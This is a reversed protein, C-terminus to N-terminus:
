LQQTSVAANVAGALRELLLMLARGNPAAAGVTKWGTLEIGAWERHSGTLTTATEIGLLLRNLHGPGGSRAADTAAADIVTFTTTSRSPPYQERLWPWRRPVVDLVGRGLLDERVLDPVSGVLFALWDGLVAPEPEGAIQELVRGAVAAVLAPEGHRPSAVGVLETAPDVRLRWSSLLEALVAASLGLGIVREPLLPDGSRAKHAALYFRCPLDLEELSSPVPGPGREVLEREDRLRVVEAADVQAHLSMFASEVAEFLRTTGGAIWAALAPAPTYAPGPTRPLSAAIVYVLQAYQPDSVRVRENDEVASVADALGAYATKECYRMLVRVVEALDQLDFLRGTVTVLM